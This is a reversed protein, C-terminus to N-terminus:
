LQERGIPARGIPAAGVQRRLEDLNRNGNMAPITGSDFGEDDLKDEEEASNAPNPEPQTRPRQDGTTERGPGKSNYRGNAVQDIVNANDPLDIQNDISVDRYRPYNAKM